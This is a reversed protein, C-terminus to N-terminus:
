YHGIRIVPSDPFQNLKYERVKREGPLLDTLSGWATRLEASEGLATPRGTEQHAGWAASQVGPITQHM